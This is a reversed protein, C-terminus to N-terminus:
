PYQSEALSLQGKRINLEYRNGNRNDTVTLTEPTFIGEDEEGGRFSKHVGTYFTDVNFKLFRALEDLTDFLLNMEDETLKLKALNRYHTAFMRKQDRSTMSDGM